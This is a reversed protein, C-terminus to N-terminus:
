FVYGFQLIIRPIKMEFENYDNESQYPIDPWQGKHETGRDHEYKFQLLVSNESKLKYALEVGGLVAVQNRGGVFIYKGYDDTTYDFMLIYNYGMGAMASIEFSNIPVSYKVQLPLHLTMLDLSSVDTTYKDYFLTIESQLSFRRSFFPDRVNIISGIIAGSGKSPLIFRGITRQTEIISIGSSSIGGILGFSFEIKVKRKEYTICEESPCVERHYDESLQILPNISLSVNDAKKVTSPSDKFLTKLVGIYEKYEREYSVGNEITIRKESKLEKLEGNEKRILYHVGDKDFYDYLDVIGDFLFELFIMSTDSQNPKGSIFYKGDEFRYAVIDNPYFTQVQSEPNARFLCKLTNEYNRGYKLLGFVTDRNNKIIYGNQFDRQSFCNIFIFTLLFSVPIIRKM